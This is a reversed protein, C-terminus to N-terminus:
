TAATNFSDKTFFINSLLAVSHLTQILSIPVSNGNIKSFVHINSSVCSEPSFRMPIIPHTIMNYLLFVVQKSDGLPFLYKLSGFIKTPISFIITSIRISMCQICIHIDFRRRYNCWAHV